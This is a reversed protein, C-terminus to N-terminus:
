PVTGGAVKEVIPRRRRARAELEKEWHLVVRQRLSRVRKGRKGTAPSAMEGNGDAMASPTVTSLEGQVVENVEEEVGLVPLDGPLKRLLGDFMEDEEGVSRRRQVM